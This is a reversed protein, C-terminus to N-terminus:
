KEHIVNVGISNKSLKPYLGWHYLRSFAQCSSEPIKVTRNLTAQKSSIDITQKKVYFSTTPMTQQGIILTYGGFDITPLEVPTSMIKNLEDISNILLCKNEKEDVFFVESYIGSTPPLYKEFFATVEESIESSSVPAIGVETPEDDPNKPENCAAFGASLASM